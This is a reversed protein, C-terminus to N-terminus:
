EPDTMGLIRSISLSRASCAAISVSDRKRSASTAAGCGGRGVSSAATRPISRSVSTRYRDELTEKGFDTLLSDRSRDVAVDFRRAHVAPEGSDNLKAPTEAKGEAKSETAAPADTKTLEMTAVDNTEVRETERFDM